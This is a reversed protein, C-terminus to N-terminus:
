RVRRNTSKPSMQSGACIGRQKLLLQWERPLKPLEKRARRKQKTSASGTKQETCYPHEQMFFVTFNLVHNPISEMVSCINVYANKDEM